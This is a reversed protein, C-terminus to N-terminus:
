WKYFSKVRFNLPENNLIMKPKENKFQQQDKEWKLRQLTQQTKLIAKLHIYRHHLVGTRGRGKIDARKITGGDSGAWVEQIFLEDENYGKIKSQELGQKLLKELETAIKKPNFHLQNIATKVNYGRVFRNVPTAKKVSSKIRLSHLYISPELIEIERPTLALKYTKGTEGDKIIENNKFFGNKQVNLQFLKQKLPTVFKDVTIQDREAAEQLFKQLEVDDKPHIDKGVNETSATSPTAPSATEEQIQPKSIQGFISGNNLLASRSHFQKIGNFTSLSPRALSISTKSLRWM